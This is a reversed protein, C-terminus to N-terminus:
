GGSPPRASEPRSLRAGRGATAGAAALAALAALALALARGHGAVLLLVAVGVATGTQAAANLVGGVLGAREEGAESTGYATSAVSAVGLGLGSLGLGAVFPPLSGVLAYVAAAWSLAPAGLGLDRQIAPLAVIVLTVGVVDVFQVVCAVTRARAAMRTGYGIPAGSM